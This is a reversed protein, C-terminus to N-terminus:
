LVVLNATLADNVLDAFTFFAFCSQGCVSGTRVTVQCLVELVLVLLV